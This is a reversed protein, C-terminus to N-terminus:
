RKKNFIFNIIGSLVILIGGLISYIDPTETWLIFGIVASFLINSYTYISVEGAPANQYAATLFYQGGIWMFGIMLLVFYEYLNPNKYDTIMLIFSGISSLLAFNFVLTVGKERGSLYRIITYAGAGFFACAVGSLAPIVNFNFQPKIIFLAGIFTIILIPVQIKSLKEKLFIVAFLSVFFPSTNVLMASDALILNSIAYFNFIMAIFGLLSRNFIYKRSEKNGFILEGNKKLIFFTILATIFNAYFMKEFLPVNNIMKILAGMISFSLASLLMYMIAKPKNDIGKEKCNM